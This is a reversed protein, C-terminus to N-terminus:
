VTERSSARGRQLSGVGKGQFAVATAVAEVYGSRISRGDVELEREAVSSYAVIEGDAEAVFHVGGLAHQWDDETMADEGDGFAAWLLARVASTAEATLSDTPVRTVTVRNAVSDGSEIEM